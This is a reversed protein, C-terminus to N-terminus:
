ERSLFQSCWDMIELMSSIVMNFYFSFFLFPNETKRCQSILHPLSILTPSMPYYEFPTVSANPEITNYTSVTLHVSYKTFSLCLVPIVTAAVLLAKIFSFRTVASHELFYGDKESM